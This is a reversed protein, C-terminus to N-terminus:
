KDNQGQKEELSKRIAFDIQADIEDAYHVILAEITLPPQTSNVGLHSLVIHIVEEPFDRSYLEAAILSAHEILKQNIAYGKKTKKFDFIRGIDHLLAGVILYDMNISIPYYSMLTKAINIALTTVSITHLILGGKVLHHEYGAYGAPSEEIDMGEYDLKKNSLKPNKLFEVVKKRLEKDEIQNAIDILIDLGKESKKGEM